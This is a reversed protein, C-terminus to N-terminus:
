KPLLDILDRVAHWADTEADEDRAGYRFEAVRRPGVDDRSAFDQKLYGVAEVAEVESLLSSLRAGIAGIGVPHNLLLYSLDYADKNEGRGRLALAKMAIFAAPGCVWIERTADEGRITNGSLTIRIRDRFALRLGPAIIAAFDNEINKIRGGREGANTPPVLFDVTVPEPGEIRWRQRAMNGNDNTDPSFGASRLRETLTQYRRDDFIALALGLDLDATGAHQEKASAQDILLTPVLGGVIVIEDLLDGLKTAVYLCTKRVSAVQAKDYGSATRPKEAM